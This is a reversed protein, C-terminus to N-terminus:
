RVLSRADVPGSKSALLKQTLEASFLEGGPVAGIRGALTMAEDRDGLLAALVAGDVLRARV